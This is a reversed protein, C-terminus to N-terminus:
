VSAVAGAGLARFRAAQADDQALCLSFADLLPRALGPLMRWHALSRASLRGNALLMPIGRRSTALVLNPWLESEVWVALDPRWHGLFREVPRPLDVPVFQHLVGEPLRTELLRAAAVTGTTAM